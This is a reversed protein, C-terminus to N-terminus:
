CSWWAGQVDVVILADGDRLEIQRQALETVSSRKAATM